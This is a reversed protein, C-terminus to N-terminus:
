KSACVTEHIIKTLEHVERTLTTNQELSKSLKLEVDSIQQDQASLRGLTAELNRESRNSSAGVLFGIYLEAVTTVLNLPFNFGTFTFWRLCFAGMPM